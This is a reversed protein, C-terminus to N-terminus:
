WQARKTPGHSRCSWHEVTQVVTDGAFLVLTDHALCGNAVTRDRGQIKPEPSKNYCEEATEGKSLGTCFSGQLHPPQAYWHPM